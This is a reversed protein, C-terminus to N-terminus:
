GTVACLLHVPLQVALLVHGDAADVRVGPRRPVQLVQQVVDGGPAEHVLGEVDEDVADDRHPQKDGVATCARTPPAVWDARQNACLQSLLAPAMISQASSGTM